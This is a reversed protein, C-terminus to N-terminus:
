GCDGLLFEHEGMREMRGVMNDIFRVYMCREKDMYKIHPKKSEKHSYERKWEKGGGDWGMGAGEEGLGDVLSYIVVITTTNM